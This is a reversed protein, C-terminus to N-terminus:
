FDMNVITDLYPGVKEIFDTSFGSDLMVKRRVDYEAPLAEPAIKKFTEINESPLNMTQLTGAFIEKWKPSNRNEVLRAVYLEFLESYEKPVNPIKKLLSRAETITHAKPWNALIAQVFTQDIGGLKSATM